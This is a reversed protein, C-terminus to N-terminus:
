DAYYRSYRKYYYGGDGFGYRAQKNTDVITLVVGAIDASAAQLSKVANISADRPTENWLVVFVTKDVIRSLVRSDSVPLVPASDLIVFDYDQRLRAILNQMQVSGLIDSPNSSGTAIPIHHLQSQEDVIIVDELSALGALVDVLGQDANVHGLTKNV